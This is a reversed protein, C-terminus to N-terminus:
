KNEPLIKSLGKVITDIDADTIKGKEFCWNAKVERDVYLVITLDATEAINYKTPGTPTEVAVTLNEIKNDDCMAKLKDAIKDDDSLFVCFSGLEAKENAKTAENLKKILKATQPCDATRAFVMAVPSDGHRCVLCAKKGADEGNVNLPHFAGPLKEGTQPGSKIEAAIAVGAVAVMACVSLLKKM